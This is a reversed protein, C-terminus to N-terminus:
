GFIYKRSSELLRSLLEGIRTLEKVYGKVDPFHVRDPERLLSKVAERILRRSFRVQAM